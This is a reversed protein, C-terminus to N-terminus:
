ELSNKLDAILSWEEKRALKISHIEWSKGVKLRFFLDAWSGSCMRQCNGHHKDGFSCQLRVVLLISGKFIEGPCFRSEKKLEPNGHLKNIQQQSFICFICLPQSDLSDTAFM